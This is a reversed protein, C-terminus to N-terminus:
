KQIKVLYEDLRDMSSSMGEVVGMEMVKKLAEESDFMSNSVLRTKGNEGFFEVTILMGPMQTNINGDKDCFFDDYVLKDPKSIEKYISKGWSEDGKNPGRLCYLWEGGIRFDMKCENMPWEKPGWWHKLHKCDSWMEFMLEPPADFERSIILERGKTEASVKATLM